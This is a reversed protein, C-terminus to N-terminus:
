YSVNPVLIDRTHSHHTLTHEKHLQRYESSWHERYNHLGRVCWVCLGECMCKGDDCVINRTDNKTISETIRQVEFELICGGGLCWMYLGCVCVSVCVSVTM